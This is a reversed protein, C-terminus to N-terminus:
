WREPKPHCDPELIKLEHREADLVVHYKERRGRRRILAGTV